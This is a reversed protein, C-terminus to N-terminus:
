KVKKKRSLKISTKAIIGTKKLRKSLEKVFPEEAGIEPITIREMAEDFRTPHLKSLTLKFQGTNTDKVLDFVMWLLNADKMAVKKMKPLTRYFAEDIAVATKRNWAELIRGKFLLQPALRKRSSSLFDPKPYKLSKTWDTKSFRARDKVFSEFPSRINGSIYVAQVELAGYDEINGFEDYKVVVYDINGASKGSAERLPVERFSTTNASSGFFFRSAESIILWEQTFRIPCIVVPDGNHFLSCVGLPEAIKDKTCHPQINNFPCLRNSISRKADKSKDDVSFGFVEVLPQTKSM